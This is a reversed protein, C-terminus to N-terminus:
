YRVTKHEKGQNKRTKLFVITKRGGYYQTHMVCKIFFVIHVYDVISSFPFLRFPDM